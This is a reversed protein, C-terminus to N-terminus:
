SIEIIAEKNKYGNLVLFLFFDKEFNTKSM